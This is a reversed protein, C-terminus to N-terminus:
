DLMAPGILSAFCAGGSADLSQTSPEKSAISFIIPALPREHFGGEVAQLEVQTVASKSVVVALCYHAMDATGASGPAIPKGRIACVLKRGELTPTEFTVQVSGSPETHRLLVLAEQSFDVKAKRLADEFGQRQNWGIQTSTRRIFSDLEDQSTFAISAFNSYGNERKSIPIVRFSESTKTTVLGAPLLMALLLSGLLSKV